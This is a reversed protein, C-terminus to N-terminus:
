KLVSIFAIRYANSLLLKGDPEKVNYSSVLFIYGGDNIKIEQLIKFFSYFLQNHYKNCDEKTISKFDQAPPGGTNLVLIDTSKHKKIFDNVQQINSTNLEKTSTRIVKYKPSIITHHINNLSEISDAIGKGIGRSGALVIAKKM